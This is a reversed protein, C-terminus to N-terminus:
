QAPIIRQFLSRTAIHSLAVYHVLFNVPKKKVVKEIM